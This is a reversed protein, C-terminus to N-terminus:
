IALRILGPPLTIGLVRDFLLYTALALLLGVVLDRVPKRSGLVRAVAVFFLTTAQWYGVPALLVAYLALAGILLLVPRWHVGEDEGERTAPERFAQVVGIVAVVGMGIGVLLPFARPGVAQYGGGDPIMFAQALVVLAVALFGASVLRTSM